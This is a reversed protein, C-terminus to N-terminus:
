QRGSVGAMVASVDAPSLSREWRVDPALSLSAGRGAVENQPGSGGEVFKFIELAAAIYQHFKGEM